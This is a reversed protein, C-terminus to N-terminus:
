DDAPGLTNTWWRWVDCYAEDLNRYRSARVLGIRLLLRDIWPM